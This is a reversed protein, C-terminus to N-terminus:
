SVRIRNVGGDHPIRKFELIPDEDLDDDSDDSDDNDHKTRHLQSLKMVYLSNNKVTDAQSGTVMYTTMPFSSRTSGLKDALIDFSLCPWEVGMQHLMEYASNDVVLEEGEDLKQGPLYVKANDKLNTSHLVKNM